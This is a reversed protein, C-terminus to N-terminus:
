CPNEKDPVGLADGIFKYYQPMGDEKLVHASNHCARPVWVLKIDAGPLARQLALAHMEDLLLVMGPRSYQPDFAAAHAPKVVCHPEGRRTGCVITMAPLTATLSQLYHPLNQMAVSAHGPVHLCALEDGWRLDGWRRRTAQDVFVQPDFALVHSAGLLAGYLLAAFGGMSVGLVAIHTYDVDAILGKIFAVNRQVANHGPPQQQKPVTARLDTLFWSEAPDSLYLAHVCLQKLSGRFEFYGPWIQIGNFMVVLPRPTVPDRRGFTALELKHYPFGPPLGPLGPTYPAGNMMIQGAAAKLQQNERELQQLREQYTLKAPHVTTAAPM